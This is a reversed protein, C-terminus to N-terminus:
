EAWKLPRHGTSFWSSSLTSLTVVALPSLSTTAASLSVLIIDHLFCVQSRLEEQSLITYLLVINALITLLCITFLVFGIADSHPGRHQHSYDIWSCNALPCLDCGHDCDLCPLCGASSNGPASCVEESGMTSSFNDVSKNRRDLVCICKHSMSKDFVQFSVYLLKTHCCVKLALFVM